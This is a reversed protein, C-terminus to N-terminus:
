GRLREGEPDVFHPSVIEVDINLDRLPDCATVVEGVRAAGNAIFGLGIMHGLSPSYAVSTMWGEDNELTKEAGQAIFHAGAHFSKNRDVPRFGMLMLGNGDVLHARESARNGICDKKKSVMRGLGLNQATVTGCLEAAVPHGKEVRMVSLAETGYPTVDYTEGASMLARMLSDGFRSPVAVEYALEGSFSIRFLRAPIGQCVTLEACGMFPFAGNSLDFDDVIKELLARSKPGAVAVQAWQDTVSVLHVDLDPWLCQRVFEMHRLIPGANATTTTVVFHTQSLRAATGDNAADRGQVDIKGLTTVDCIGVGQRTALVERDVSDRWGAEGPRAYWEARLWLGAEVFSAGNEAAWDHSFTKRTPRYAKGRSRGGLAGFSVPNYPPRFMTTGTQEISKGTAEAMIALGLVNSTRGQDTAMGLTTYRKLHEVSRFGETQSQKIDKATVDNQLDVWARAKSAGVHWFPSIAFDEDDARPASNTSADIDMYKLANSAEKHGSALCAGLTM